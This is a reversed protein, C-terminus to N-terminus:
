KLSRHVRVHTEHNPERTHLRIFDWWGDYFIRKKEKKQSENTPYNEHCTEPRQTYDIRRCPTSWINTMTAGKNNEYALHLARSSRRTPIDNNQM